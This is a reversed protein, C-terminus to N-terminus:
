LMFYLISDRILVELAKVAMSGKFSLEHNFYSQYGKVLALTFLFTEFSLFPIWYLYSLRWTDTLICAEMSIIAHPDANVPGSHCQFNLLRIVDTFLCLGIQARTSLVLIVIEAIIVASFGPIILALLKKSKAFMAYLRLM